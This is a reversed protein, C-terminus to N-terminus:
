QRESLELMREDAGAQGPLSLLCLALIALLRIKVSLRPPDHDRGGTGAAHYDFRCEGM